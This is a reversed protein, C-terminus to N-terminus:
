RPTRMTIANTCNSHRTAHIQERQFLYVLFNTKLKCMRFGHVRNTRSLSIIESRTKFNGAELPVPLNMVTNVLDRRQNKGRALHIWNVVKWGREGPDM